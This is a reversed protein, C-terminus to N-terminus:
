ALADLVAQAAARAAAIKTNAADLQTQLVAIEASRDAPPEGDIVIITDTPDKYISIM